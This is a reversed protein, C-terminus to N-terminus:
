TSVGILEGWVTGTVTGTVLNNKTDNAHGFQQVFMRTKPIQIRWSSWTVGSCNALYIVPPM